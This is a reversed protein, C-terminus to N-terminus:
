GFRPARSCQSNFHQNGGYKVQDLPIVVMKGVGMEGIIQGMKVVGMEGVGMKGVRFIKVQGTEGVCWQQNLFLISVTKFYFFNNM